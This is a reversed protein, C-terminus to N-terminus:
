LSATGQVGDVLAQMNTMQEEISEVLQFQARARHLNHELRDIKFYVDGNIYDTLFRIGIELTILKGAFALLSKEQSTLFDRTSELYGELLAKYYPLQMTVKSLDIEDEAVPSTLTRVLDGFDYLITGPMVTDLDVICISENTTNDLLVNGLKADNHTVREPILGDRIANVLVYVDCERAFVFEIEQKVFQVRNCTNNSIAIQLQELRYPTNHFNPITEHLRQGPLDSLLSAFTGFAQGASRAQEISSVIEHGTANAIFHYCRWRSDDKDTTTKTSTTTTTTTTKNDIYYLEGYPYTPVLRLSRRDISVDFVDTNAELLKYRIHDCVRIVNSMVLDPQPFVNSNIRQLIYRRQENINPTNKDNATTTTMDNATTATEVLYTDNIHGNGYTRVSVIDGILAFERAISTAVAEGAEM